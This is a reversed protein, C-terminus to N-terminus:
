SPIVYRDEGPKGAMVVVRCERSPLGARAGPTPAYFTLFQM